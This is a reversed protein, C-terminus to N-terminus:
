LVRRGIRKRQKQQQQSAMKWKLWTAATVGNLNIDWNNIWVLYIYMYQRGRTAYNSLYQDSNIKLYDNSAPDTMFVMFWTTNESFHKKLLPKVLPSMAFM